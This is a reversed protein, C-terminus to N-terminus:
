RAVRVRGHRYHVVSWGTTVAFVVACVADLVLDVISM